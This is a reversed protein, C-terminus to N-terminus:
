MPPMCVRTYAASKEAQGQASGTVAAPTGIVVDCGPPPSPPAASTAAPAFAFAGCIFSALALRRM